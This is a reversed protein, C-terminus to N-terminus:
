VTQGQVRIRSGLESPMLIYQSIHASLLMMTLCCLSNFSSIPCKGILLVNDEQYRLERPLNLISAYIAGFSYTAGSFPSFWDINLQLSLSIYGPEDLWPRLSDWKSGDYVDCLHM